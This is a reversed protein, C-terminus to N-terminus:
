PTLRDASDSSTRAWKALTLASAAKTMECPLAQFTGVMVLSSMKARMTSLSAMYAASGAEFWVSRLAFARNRAADVHVVPGHRTFKLVHIQDAAGKVAFREEVREMELWEGKYTYRDPHGPETEYVYIDEQDTSFITQSFAAFGNHGTSVGPM